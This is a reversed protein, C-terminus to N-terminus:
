VQTLSRCQRGNLDFNDPELWAEFAAKVPLWDRDIVSFWAADRNYGKVVTAQRFIGEFQFGLHVKAHASAENLANWKWEYRRYAISQGLQEHQDAFLYRIAGEKTM